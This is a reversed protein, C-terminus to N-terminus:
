SVCPLEASILAGGWSSAGVSLSGGAAEARDALGRLGQGEPDAGGVGDDAVTLRLRGDLRRADVEIRSARAHKVANAVAECAIFWAAAEVRPPFREDAVRLRVPVPTRAALEDLAAALGGDSLITPHLGNALERLERVARQIEEVASDLLAGAGAQDRVAAARLQFALGLLRQQAGDHLNREIKRREALQAEVIRARSERVEVLQLAIAARLRANELEPRAEIAVAQVLHQDLHAPEYGVFAVPLGHRRVEVGTRSPGSARGDQTVWRSREDVWYSVDVAADRLAQRLVEEVTASPSPDRVYHRVLEVAEFERRNFRRDLVDQVRGRAPWAVSVAGLTGLVASLQSGGGLDGLVSGAVLVVVLYSLLAAGTLLVYSLTRSLLRDVEYLHYQAIALGAALPLIAVMVGATASLLLTSDTLAAVFTGVLLLPLPIAALAIWRLRRREVGRASRFRVFMSVAALPVAGMAGALGVYRVVGVPLRGAPWAMPNPVQEFPPDLPSTSFVMGLVLLIGGCGAAWAVPRWRPSPPVGTPTLLLILAIFVLWPAFIGDAVVAAYGAGPWVGPRALAAYRAYEEAVGGIAISVGFAVFLWGVPHRPHRVALASGVVAASLLALGFLIGEAPRLVQLDPRGAAEIKRDVFVMAAAMLVLLGWLGGLLVVLGTRGSRANM